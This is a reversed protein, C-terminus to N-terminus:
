EPKPLPLRPMLHNLHPQRGLLLRWSEEFELLDEETVDNLRLIHPRDDPHDVLSYLAIWARQQRSLPSANPSAAAAPLM